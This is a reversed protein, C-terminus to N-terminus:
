RMLNGPPLVFTLGSGLSANVQNAFNLAAQANSKRAATASLAVAIITQNYATQLKSQFQQPLVQTPAGNSVQIADELEFAALELLDNEVTVETSGYVELVALAANLRQVAMQVNLAINLVRLFRGIKDVQAATLVINPNGSPSSAFASTTYFRVADEITTFANTHFFPGTDAAEILPPTNFKGDGFAGPFPSTNGQGFGGDHPINASDVAPVRTSEVGTSFNRNTLVLQADARNAGANRHCVNCRNGTFLDRGEQASGDSLQLTAIDLENTRGLSLQFAEALDLEDSDPLRFSTGPTRSLDKPYHQFVAGSLFDRLTGNGPAGDGSWGTRQNPPLTSGDGPSPALSTALSLTHPISRMTFKNPLDDAGDVNELVLAFDHLLAPRELTELGFTNSAVFLPDSPPLGAIFTPSITFNDEARHCTGCQRGNGEFTERFFLDAGACIEASVLGLEVRPDTACAAIRDAATLANGSTSIELTQPEPEAGCGSLMGLLFIAPGRVKLQEIRM